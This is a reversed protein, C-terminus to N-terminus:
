IRTVQFVQSLSLPKHDYKEIPPLRAFKPPSPREFVPIASIGSLEYRRTVNRCSVVREVHRSRRATSKSVEVCGFYMPEVRRFHRTTDLPSTVLWTSNTSIHRFIVYSVQDLSLLRNNYNDIPPHHAIEPPRPCNSFPYLGFEMQSFM